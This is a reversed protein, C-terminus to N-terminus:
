SAAITTDRTQIVQAVKRHQAVPAMDRNCVLLSSHSYRGTFGPDDGSVILLDDSNASAWKLIVM